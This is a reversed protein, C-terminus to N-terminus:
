ATPREFAAVAKYSNGVDDLGGASFTTQTDFRAPFRVLRGSRTTQTASPPPPTAPPVIATTARPQSHHERLRDLEVCLSTQGQRCVRKGRVLLQLRKERRPQAVLRETGKTGPHLLDHASQLVQTTPSSSRVASTERCIHRLLHLCHHRSNTAERAASRHEVVSINSTRRRQVATCATRRAITACHIRRSLADSVVSDQGSIYIDYTPQDTFIIFHCAELMHRFHKVAEYVALLERDYASYKQQTLTPKKSFALLQWANDIRQQLVAGM